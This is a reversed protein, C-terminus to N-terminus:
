QYLKRIFCDRVHTSWVTCVFATPLSKASFFKCHKQKDKATSLCYIIIKRGTASEEVAIVLDHLGLTRFLLRGIPIMDLIDWFSLIHTNSKHYCAVILRISIFAVLRKKTITSEDMILSFHVTKKTNARQKGIDKYCKQVPHDNNKKKHSEIRWLILYFSCKYRIM